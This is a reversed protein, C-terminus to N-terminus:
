KYDKASRSMGYNACWRRVANDSVNHLKGVEVFSHKRLQETLVEKTVPPTVKNFTGVCKSSCFQQKAERKTFLKSCSKCNSEGYNRAGRKSKKNKGCYTDTLSHCNPCLWRLNEKTNNSPDGDIHDLQLTIPKNQWTSIGCCSCTYPMFNDKIVRYRLGSTSRITGKSYFEDDPTRKHYNAKVEVGLQIARKKAVLAGSSGNHGLKKSLETYSKSEKAKSIFEEDSCNWIISKM